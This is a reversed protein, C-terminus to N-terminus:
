APTEEGIRIERELFYNLLTRLLIIAGLNMIDSPTPAVATRRIDSAITLELGLALARGLRLRVTEISLSAVGGTSFLGRTYAYTGRLTAIGIVFAAVIEAAAAVYGVVLKLWTDHPGRMTSEASDGSGGFRLLLVLGLILGLPLVMSIASDQSQKKNPEM